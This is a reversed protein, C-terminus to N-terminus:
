FNFEGERRETSVLFQVVERNESIDGFQSACSLEEVCRQLESVSPSLRGISKLCMQILGLALM